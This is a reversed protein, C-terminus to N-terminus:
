VNKWIKVDIMEFATWIKGGTEMIKGNNGWLKGCKEWIKGCKEWRNQPQQLNRERSIGQGTRKL